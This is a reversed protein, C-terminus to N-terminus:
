CVYIIAKPHRKAGDLIEELFRTATEHNGWGNEPNMAEYTEKNKPDRIHAVADELNSILGSCEKGHLGNIGHGALALHFMKSCNYTHNLGNGLAVLEDGGTDIKFDVDYSM